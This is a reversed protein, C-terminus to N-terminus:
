GGRSPQHDPPQLELDLVPPRRHRERCRVRSPGFRPRHPCAQDVAHRSQRFVVYTRAKFRQFGRQEVLDCALQGFRFASAYDGFRPGAVVSRAHCLCFLVCRQQRTAPQSQGGPLDGPFLLNDYGAYLAPLALKTLVDLTALSVPDSMVASRHAGRDARSGLLAWTREYERRAEEETPHPPWEM